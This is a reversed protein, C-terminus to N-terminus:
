IIDVHKNQVILLELGWFLPQSQHNKENNILRDSVREILLNVRKDVFHWFFKCCYVTICFLYIRVNPFSSSATTQFKQM